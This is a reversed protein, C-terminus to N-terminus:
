KKKSRSTRRGSKATPKTGELRWYNGEPRWTRKKLTKGITADDEGDLVALIDDRVSKNIRYYQHRTADEEGEMAAAASANILSFNAPLVSRNSPGIDGLRNPNAKSLDSIWLAVDQMNYYLTTRRGLHELPGLKHELELADSDEDPAFLIIQDFIRPLARGVFRRMEQIAHRLVYNGMSHAIIHIRRECQQERSLSRVYDAAKLIGRAMAAGSAEADKRDSKYSKFPEARGDSPWTFLIWNRPVAGLWDKLQATRCIADEFSYNFGHISFITDAHGNKMSGRLSAFAQESGLLMRDKTLDEPFVEFTFKELAKGTVEARGFRLESLGSRNFNGTFTKPNEPPEPDRNTAFYITVM